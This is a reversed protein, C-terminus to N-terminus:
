VSVQFRVQYHKEAHVDVKFASMVEDFRYILTGNYDMQNAKLIGVIGSELGQQIPAHELRLHYDEEGHIWKFEALSRGSHSLLIGTISIPEWDLPRLSVVIAYDHMGKSGPKLRFEAEIQERITEGWQLQTRGNFDGRSEERLDFLLQLRQTPYEIGADFYYVGPDDQREYNFHTDFRFSQGYSM